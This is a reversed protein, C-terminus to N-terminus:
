SPPRVQDDVLGEPGERMLLLFGQAVGLMNGQVLQPAYPPPTAGAAGAAPTRGSCGGM